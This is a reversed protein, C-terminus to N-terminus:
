WIGGSSDSERKELGHGDLMYMLDNEGEFKCSM